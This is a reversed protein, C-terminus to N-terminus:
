CFLTADLLKVLLCAVFIQADDSDQFEDIFLYRIKLDSFPLKGSFLVQRLDRMIDDIAVANNLKKIEMYRVDIENITRCLLQHFGVSRNDSCDGWNMKLMDDHSIGLQAFRSWYDYITSSAKYFSMGFQKWLPANKNVSENILDKIIEKKEYTFSRIALNKTFGENSGYRGLLEYAFSHITSINMQSQEELWMLYKPQNTLRYRLLLMEQLRVNMQNTADNTFTIMYVESLKIDDVTHLLYMIRDIMVTTKGTGAFAQVVIHDSENCHEVQYQAINFMPCVSEIRNLYDNETKGDVVIFSMNDPVEYAQMLFYKNFEKYTSKLYLVDEKKGFWLVKIGTKLWASIKDKYNALIQNYLLVSYKPEMNM